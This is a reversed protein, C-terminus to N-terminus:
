GLALRVKCWGLQVWGLRASTYGVLMTQWGLRVGVQGRSIYDM